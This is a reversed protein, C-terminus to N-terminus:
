DKKKYFDTLKQELHSSLSRNITEDIIVLIFEKVSFFYPIHFFLIFCFATRILVSVKGPRKAINELLSTRIDSGFMLVSIIAASIFAVAYISLNLISVWYYRETSRKELEVYTPFVMWQLSVAFVLISVATVLHHDSKVRTLDDMNITEAVEVSDTMLESFLLAIFGITLGLFIYSIIKLESLQRKFIIFFQSLGVLLIASHKSCAVQQWFPYEDVENPVEGLSKEEAPAILIQTCLSSLTEGLLMYYMICASFNQILMIVCVVFISSRGLLLYAIEYISEYRRPTLDKVKLYMMNSFHALVTILFACILGLYLGLHYFAYPMALIGGGLNAAM